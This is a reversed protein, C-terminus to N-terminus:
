EEFNNKDRKDMEGELFLTFLILAVTGAFVLSFITLLDWQLKVGFKLCPTIIAAAVFARWIIETVMDDNGM